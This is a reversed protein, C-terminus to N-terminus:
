VAPFAVGAIEEVTEYECDRTAEGRVVTRGGVCLGRSRRVDVRLGLWRLLRLDSITRMAIRLGRIQSNLPLPLM